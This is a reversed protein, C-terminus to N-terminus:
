FDKLGSYDILLFSEILKGMVVLNDEVKRELDEISMGDFCSECLGFLPNELDFYQEEVLSVGDKSYSYHMMCNRFSSDFVNNLGIICDNIRQSVETDIIRESIRSLMEKAYYM